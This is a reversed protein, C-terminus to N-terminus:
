HALQITTKGEQSIMWLLSIANRSAFSALAEQDAKSEWQRLSNQFKLGHEQIAVQMLEAPNPKICPSANKKPHPAGTLAYM